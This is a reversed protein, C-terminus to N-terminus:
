VDDFCFEGEIDEVVERGADFGMDRVVFGIGPWSFSTPSAVFESLKSQM